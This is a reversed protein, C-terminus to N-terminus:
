YYRRPRTEPEIYEESKDYKYKNPKPAPTGAEGGWAGSQGGRAPDNAADVSTDGARDDYPTKGPTPKPKPKIVEPRPMVGPFPFPKPNPVPQPAPKPKNGLLSNWNNRESTKKNYYDQLNDGEKYDDGLETYNYDARKMGPPPTNTVGYTVHINGQQDVWHNSRGSGDIIHERGKRPRYGPDNITIIKGDKTVGRKPPKPKWGDDQNMSTNLYDIKSYDDKGNAETVIRNVTEVLAKTLPDM